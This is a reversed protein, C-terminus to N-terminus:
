TLMLLHQIRKTVTSLTKISKIYVETKEIPVWFLQKGFANSKMMKMGAKSDDFTVDIKWVNSQSHNSRHKVTRLQGNVLRVQLDIHVTLIVRANLKIDLVESLWGTERQNRNLFKMVNESKPCKKTKVQCQTFKEKLQNYWKCTRDKQM